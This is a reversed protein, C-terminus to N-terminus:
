KENNSEIYKNLIKKACNQYEKEKNVIFYDVGYYKKLSIRELEDKAMSYRSTRSDREDELRKKLIKLSPPMVYVCFIEGKFKNEMTKIKSIPFDLIPYKKDEIARYIPYEPTAYLNGYISNIILFKEKNKLIKNKSISIKDIEEKRLKRSTLPKIYIFKKELRCLENIILSKGVGSVGCILLFKIKDVM